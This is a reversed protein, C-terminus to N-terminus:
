CKLEVKTRYFGFGVIHNTHNYGFKLEVKTRYFSASFRLALVVFNM